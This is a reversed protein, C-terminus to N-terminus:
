DGAAERDRLHQLGDLAHDLVPAVPCDNQTPVNDIEAQLRAHDAARANAAEATVVLIQQTREAEAVYRNFSDVTRRNAEAYIAADRKAAQLDLEQQALDRELSANDWKLWGIYGGVAIVVAALGVLVWPGASGGLMRLIFGIM